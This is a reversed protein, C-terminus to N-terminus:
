VRRDPHRHHDGPAVARAEPVRLALLVEVEDASAPGHRSQAVAVWLDHPRDALLRLVEEVDGVVEVGLRLEAERLAERAEEASAAEQAVAPGLAHLRRDLEGALVAVLCGPRLLVLHDARQVRKVPAREAREEGGAV